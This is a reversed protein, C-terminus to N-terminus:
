WLVIEYEEEPIEASEVIAACFQKIADANLNVYIWWGNPLEYWADSTPTRTFYSTHNAIVTEEFNDNCWQVAVESTRRLIDRWSYVPHVEGLIVVSKPKEELYGGSDGLQPWFKNAKAMLWQARERISKANWAAPAHDAFYEQNLRLGHEALKPRKIAYRSNSLQSNWDRTVVTLNGFTHLLGHEQQWNEGLDDKWGDTLTQPMIHEITPDDSLVTYAGSGESLSRNITDFVLALKQRTIRDGAYLNLTEASQRLRVDSPERRSGLANRLAEAFEVDGRERVDKILTPFMKNLFNTSDRNLFRRVMYTEILRLSVLVEDRSLVGQQWEDYLYLLFPYATGSELIALRELQRRVDKDPERGPRLLRDYYGAFRKLTALEDEFGAVSMAQGRDRFRSYVHEENVLVGYLYAFYHRLFATLEGLRSRGVTRKELLTEEIPSWLETFVPAQRTPPLKMAIYNRVLDAQTLSKGKYNLSEFIEYPRENHELNIFVFQLSMMLVNFLRNPDIGDSKLRNTLHTTLYAYAQPIRSEVGSPAPKGEVIACYSNQDGYKLTPLLKYRLNGTEDENLLMRRVKKTLGSHQEEGNLVRQLACLVLSVSTLRQQGDVLRFVPVTGAQTGDNIVVLSGMFHEPPQEDDRYVDYIGFIDILLTKWEPEGWAYERQFHPLVYHIDGGSSFVKVMQLSDAKM